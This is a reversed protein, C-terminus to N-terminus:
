DHDDGLLELQAGEELADVDDRQALYDAKLQRQHEEQELDAIRELILRRAAASRRIGWRSAHESIRQLTDESLTLNMRFM